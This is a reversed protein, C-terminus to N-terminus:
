HDFCNVNLKTPALTLNLLNRSIIWLITSINELIEILIISVSYYMPDQIIMLLNDSEIPYLFVTYIM